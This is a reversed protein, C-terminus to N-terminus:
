ATDQRHRAAAPAGKRPIPSSTKRCNIQKPIAYYTWFFNHSTIKGNYFKM